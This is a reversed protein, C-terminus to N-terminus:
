NESKNLRIQSHASSKELVNQLIEVMSIFVLLFQFFFDNPIRDFCLWCELDSFVSSKPVFISDFSSM